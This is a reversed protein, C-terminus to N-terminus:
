GEGELERKKLLLADLKEVVRKMTKRNSRWNKPLRATMAARERESMGLEGVMRDIADRLGRKEQEVHLSAVIARLQEPKRVWAICHVKFMRRAIADAYAWTLHMDTLLAEIKTILEPMARSDANRPRGPYTGPQAKGRSTSVAPRAAGLRRMEDLVRARGPADLSAASRVGAVRELLAEYTDRDLGLQKAAVHIAALDRVRREPTAINRATM